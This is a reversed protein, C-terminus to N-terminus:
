KKARNQLKHIVDGIADEVDILRTVVTANEGGLAATRKLGDAKQRAPQYQKKDLLVGVETIGKKVAPTKSAASAQALLKKATALRQELTQRAAAGPLALCLATLAVAVHKTM